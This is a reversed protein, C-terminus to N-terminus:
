RDMEDEIFKTSYTGSVFRPHDLIRLHYPITTKVGHVVFEELARKMRLIAGARSPAHVILKALLSDYHSPVVYGSYIHTDVRVGPGGPVYLKRIKGPSPLFGRQPDEANIRCEIAHGFFGIQRQRYPLKHGAAALIQEKILDMGTVMETVPHEVQIRTNMEIFFFQGKNDLLFEVTGAGTYGATRAAKVAERGMRDRLRPSLASCPSEELLKQHRRQISCEREGLHVVNGHNDAMIQIEVHRAREVFRELYVSANGFAAKAEAQAIHLQELMHRRDAAVRMGKGGGGASAKIFVPYGIRDALRLATADDKIPEKSGLPVAIGARAMLARAASKDGMAAIVNSRPGIFTIKVIECVEAFFPNEALFGYGPHIADAKAAKAAHVIEPYNLYSEESPARGICRSEDALEVHLAKRDAESCVAVTRIGLEKCARIIRVAIEGRNAILIKTFM